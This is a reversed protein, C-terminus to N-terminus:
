GNLSEKTIKSLYSFYHYQVDYYDCPLISNYYNSQYSLNDFQNLVNLKDIFKDLCM